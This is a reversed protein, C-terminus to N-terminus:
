TPACRAPSASRLETIASSDRNLILLHGLL